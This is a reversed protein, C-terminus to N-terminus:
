NKRQNLTCRLALKVSEILSSPNALHFKGAIDFATGHLPSTRIFPLGVSLNIGSQSDLLKLPILAQDHYMAIVCDFEEKGAKHIAVDSSLPGSIDKIKRKLRNLVPKIINKEEDGLLGNDSAHPNIGCVVIRPRRILFLKKLAQYAMLINKYLEEKKIQKPVAKLRIHRTVLSFRLSKNLLMMMMDKSNTHKALYETHGSFKIGSLNIAEKSVPCTVLCDIENKKILELARDIYEVSAKGYEAKVKGFQFNKRPVNCLDILKFNKNKIKSKQNKELVWKDGIVVFEALGKLRPLAKLTIAPGIGSPDGMTLGVKIKSSKLIPINKLGM